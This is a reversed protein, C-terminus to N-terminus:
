PAYLVPGKGFRLCKRMSVGIRGSLSCSCSSARNVFVGASWVSTKVSMVMRFWPAYKSCRGSCVRIRLRMPRVDRGIRGEVSSCRVM